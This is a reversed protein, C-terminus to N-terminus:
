SPCTKDSGKMSEVQRNENQDKASVRVYGFKQSELSLVGKLVNTEKLTCNREPLRLYVLSREFLLKIYKRVLKEIYKM